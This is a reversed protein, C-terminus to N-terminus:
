PGRDGGKPLPFRLIALVEGMRKIKDGPPSDEPVMIVRARTKYALEILQTFEEVRDSYFISDTLALTDVAGMELARKVDDLGQSTKEPSRAILALFRELFGEAELIYYGRLERMINPRRIAEELGARGGMAADDVYVRAEPKLERIRAAVEKKLYGPGVVIIAVADSRSSYDVAQRSVNEILRKTAEERSPDMKGPLRAHDEALVRFGIPSLLAIAYEDYDIAVLVARGRPGSERLREVVSPSWGSEREIVISQGVGITMAHHKGRLGYEEPGEVIVGFVRLRGTFPQFEADKVRLKVRVLRREGRKGGVSISRTTAGEVIDGPRLISRLLWLDEEFDIRVVLRERDVRFRM